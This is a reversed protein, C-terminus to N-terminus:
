AVDPHTSPAHRPVFPRARVLPPSPLFSALPFRYWKGHPPRRRHAHGGEGPWLAAQGAGAQVDHRRVAQRPRAYAPMPRHTYLVVDRTRM